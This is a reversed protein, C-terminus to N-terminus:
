FQQSVIYRELAAFEDLSMETRRELKQQIAKASLDRDLNSEIRDVDLVATSMGLLLHECAMEEITDADPADPSLAQIAAADSLSLEPVGDGEALAAVADRDVDAEAAVEDVGRDDVVARLDAEYEARLEEPSLGSVDM